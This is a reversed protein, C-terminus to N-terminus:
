DARTASPIMHKAELTPSEGYNVILEDVMLRGVRLGVRAVGAFTQNWWSNWWPPPAATAVMRVFRATALAAAAAPTANLHVLFAQTRIDYVERAWWRPQEAAGGIDRWPGDASVSSVSWRVTHPLWCTVNRAVAKSHDGDTFWVPPAALFNAGLSQLQPGFRSPMELVVVADQGPHFGVWKRDWPSQRGTEGDTLNGSALAPDPAVGYHVPWGIAVHPVIGHVATLQLREPATPALPPEGALGLTRTYASWEREADPPGWPPPAAPGVPACQYMAEATFTIVNEVYPSVADLQALIRPFPAPILASEAYNPVGEWTFSEINAWLAPTGPHAHALMLNHFAARSREVPLEDRICGVEDQYAIVDVDLKQLQTVFAASAGAYRTGYPSVFKRANPTLANSWNSMTDIYDMFSETFCATCSGPPPPPAPASRCLEGWLGDHLSTTDTLYAESSFYWGHFSPLATYGLSHLEQMIAHRGLMLQQNNVGDADTHTFECSLWIKITHQAAARM